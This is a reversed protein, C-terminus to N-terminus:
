QKKGQDDIVADFGEDQDIRGFLNLLHLVAGDVLDTAHYQQSRKNNAYMFYKDTTVKRKGRSLFYTVDYPGYLM